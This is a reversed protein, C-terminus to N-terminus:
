TEAKARITYWVQSVVSEVKALYCRSLHDDPSNNHLPHGAKLVGLSVTVIIADAAWFKGNACEM